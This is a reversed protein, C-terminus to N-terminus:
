LYVTHRKRVKGFPYAYGSETKWTQWFYSDGLEKQAIASFRDYDSRLMGIDLDDDWPIFGQHRIAGLLTGSDLFYAIQYKSCVQDIDKLMALLELQVKRLTVDDM